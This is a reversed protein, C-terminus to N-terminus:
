WTIDIVIVRDVLLEYNHDESNEDTTLEEITSQLLLMVDYM